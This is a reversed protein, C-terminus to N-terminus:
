LSEQILLAAGPAFRTLTRMLKFDLTDHTLSWLVLTGFLDPARFRRFIAADEATWVLGQTSPTTMRKGQQTRARTCRKHTAATPPLTRRARIRVSETLFQLM